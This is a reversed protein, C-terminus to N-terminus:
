YFRGVATKGKPYLVSFVLWICALVRFNLLLLCNSKMVESGPAVKTNSGNMLFCM